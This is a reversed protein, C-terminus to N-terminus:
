NNFEIALYAENIEFSNTSAIGLYPILLLEVNNDLTKVEFSLVDPNGQTIVNKFYNQSLSGDKMAIIKCYGNQANSADTLEITITYTGSNVLNFSCGFDIDKNSVVEGTDSSKVEVDFNFHSSNIVNSDSGIGVSLWSWTASSFLLVFLFVNALAFLVILKKTKKM